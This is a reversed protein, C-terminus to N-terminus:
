PIAPPWWPASRGFRTERQLSTFWSGFCQEIFISVAYHIGHMDDKIFRQLAKMGRRSRRKESEPYTVAHNFWATTMRQKAMRAQLESISGVTIAVYLIGTIGELAALMRVEGHLPVIDGYCMLGLCAVGVLFFLTGSIPQSISEMVVGAGIGSYVETTRFWGFPEPLFSGSL